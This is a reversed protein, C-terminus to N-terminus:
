DNLGFRDRVDLAERSPGVTGDSYKVYIPVPGSTNPSPDPKPQRAEARASRLFRDLGDSSLRLDPYLPIWTKHLRLKDESLGSVQKYVRALYKDFRQDDDRDGKLPDYTAAINQDLPMVDAMRALNGYYLEDDDPDHVIVYIPRSNRWVTRLRSDMDIVHHGEFGRAPERQLEWDSKDFHSIGRRNHREDVHLKREYKEGGKIQLKVSLGSDHTPRALTLFADVGNDNRQDVEEFLLDNEEFLTRAKNVARNGVRRSLYDNDEVM